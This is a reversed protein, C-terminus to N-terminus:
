EPAGTQTASTDSRASGTTDDHSQEGPVWAEVLLGGGDGSAVRLSGGVAEVRRRLSRLGQGSGGTDDGGDGGPQRGPGDDSVRLIMAEPAAILEVLIRSAGPAHKIANTVGEQAVRYLALQTQPGPPADRFRHLDTQGRAELQVPAGADVASQVLAPLDALGPVPHLLETSGTAGLLGDTPARLSRTLARTQGLADRATALVTALAQGVQKLREEADLSTEQAGLTALYHGAEAQVAILALAHGVVDHVESAIESRLTAAETKLRQDQEARRALVEAERAQVVSRRLTVLRGMAWALLGLTLQLVLLTILSQWYMPDPVVGREDETWAVAAVVCGAGMLGLWVPQLRRRGREGLRFLAFLVILDATLSGNILLLQLGALLFVVALMVDTDLRRWWTAAWAVCLAVVAGWNGTANWVEPVMNVLMLTMVATWLMRLILSSRVGVVASALGRLGIRM